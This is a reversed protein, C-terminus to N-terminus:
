NKKLNFEIPIILVEDGWKFDNDQKDKCRKYLNIFQIIGHERVYEKIKKIEEWTLVKGETLQGM